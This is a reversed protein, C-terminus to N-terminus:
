SRKLMARALKLEERNGGVTDVMAMLERFYGTAKEIDGATWAALGAGYVGNLRRPHGRLDAQYQVLAEQPRGTALLLDALQERAPLVECPTVPNKETSDELNAAVLMAAVAEKARGARFAMWSELAKRQILVQSAAYIDKEAILRAHIRDLVALEVAASDLRDLHASGLGRAFHLIAEQWPFNKWPVVGAPVRLAAAAAWDRRELAYRAPVAAFAYAVKFNVPYVTDITSLYDRQERALSDQGRQLYAYVLYDLGHLEEDWHGGIGAARAYCRAADVSLLNSGIADAWLGLRTFIHSPMHLAHASSPAVAAYRKAAPLALSALEPYDYTHIIYHIVGPHDPMAAYLPELIAGAKRQKRRSKDAPDAAATLALTYLITAERDDPYAQRLTDMAQEWRLCRKAHGQTEWDDYYASLAHIYDRERATVNRLSAAIALARSGKKLESPTPPAWLPHFNSMAVGWYAMACEPDRGIIGAFLKEAEDYEFSHLLAMGQDFAAAEAPTSLVFQVTGFEKEPPGCGILKGEKLQL